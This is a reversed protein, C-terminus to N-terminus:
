TATPIARRRPLAPAALALRSLCSARFTALSHGGRRLVEHHRRWVLLCTATLLGHSIALTLRMGVPGRWARLRSLQEAHFVLHAAEDRLFTGCLRGLLPSATAERLAGYYAYGVIEATLLVSLSVEYSGTVRRLIRFLVDPGCCRIAAHGNLALFRALEAAHRQEEAIFLGLVRLLADEDQHHRRAWGSAARRLRSGGSSEGRQFERLSPVVWAAEGPPLDAGLEWPIDHSAANLTFYTVWMSLSM